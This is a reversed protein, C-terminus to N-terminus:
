SPKSHSQFFPSTTAACRYNPKTQENKFNKGARRNKATVRLPPIKATATALCHNPTQKTMKYARVLAKINNKCMNGITIANDM